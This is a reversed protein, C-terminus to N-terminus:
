LAVEDIFDAVRLERADVTQTSASRLSVICEFGNLKFMTSDLMGERRIVDMSRRSFALIEQLSEFKFVKTIGCSTSSRVVLWGSNTYEAKNMFQYYCNRLLTLLSPPRDKRKATLRASQGDVMM